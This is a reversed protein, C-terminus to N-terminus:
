RSSRSNCMTHTIGGDHEEKGVCCLLLLVHGRISLLNSKQYHHSNQYKCNVVHLYNSDHLM